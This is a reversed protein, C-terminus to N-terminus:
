RRYAYNGRQPNCAQNSNSQNRRNFRNRENNQNNRDNNSRDSDSASQQNRGQPEWKKPPAQQQKTGQSAKASSWYNGQQNSTPRVQTSSSKGALLLETTKDQKNSIDVGLQLKGGFLFESELSCDLTLKHYKQDIHPRISARRMSDLKQAMKGSVQLADLLNDHVTILEKAPDQSTELKELLIGASQATLSAQKSLLELVNQHALDITKHQSKM